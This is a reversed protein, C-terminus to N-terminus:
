NLSIKNVKVLKIQKPVYCNRGAPDKIVDYLESIKKGTKYAKNCVKEYSYTLKM